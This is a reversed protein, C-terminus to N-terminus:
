QAAHFAGNLIIGRRGNKVAPVAGPPLAPAAPSAQSGGSLQARANQAAEVYPHPAKKGGFGSFGSFLRTREREAQQQQDPPLAARYEEFADYLEKGHAQQAALQARMANKLNALQTAGFEGTDMKAVIGEVTAYGGGMHKIALDL